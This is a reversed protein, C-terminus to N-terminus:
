SREGSYQRLRTNLENYGVRGSRLDGRLSLVDSVAQDYLAPHIKVESGGESVIREKSKKMDDKGQKGAEVQPVGDRDKYVIIWNNRGTALDRELAEDYFKSM